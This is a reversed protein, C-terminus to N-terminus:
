AGFSGRRAVSGRFRSTKAAPTRCCGPVGARRDPRPARDSKLIALTSSVKYCHLTPHPFPRSAWLKSGESGEDKCRSLAHVIVDLSLRAYNSQMSLFSVTNNVNYGFAALNNYFDCLESEM